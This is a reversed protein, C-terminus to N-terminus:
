HNKQSFKLIIFFKSTLYWGSMVVVDEDVIVDDIADDVVFVVTAIAVADVVFVVTDIVVADVVFVVTDIM